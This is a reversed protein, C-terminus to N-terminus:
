SATMAWLAFRATFGMGPRGREYCFHLKGYRGALKRIVREVTAPASDVAGLYRVEGERGADAIALAHKNKATDIGVFAENYQKM